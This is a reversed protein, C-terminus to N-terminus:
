QAEVGSLHGNARECRHKGPGLPQECMPCRPRGAALLPPISESLARLQAKTVQVTFDPEEGTESEINHAFLVFLSSREDLGIALQGVRFDVDPKTTFPAARREGEGQAAAAASIQVAPWGTLLQEVLMALAELQQRELWLCASGRDSEVIVRFARQGPRGVADAEIRTAQGFDADREAL